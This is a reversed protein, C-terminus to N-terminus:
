SLTKFAIYSVLRIQLVDAIKVAVETGGSVETHPLDLFDVISSFHLLAIVCLTGLLNIVLM